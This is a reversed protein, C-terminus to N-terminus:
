RGRGEMGGGKQLKKRGEMGERGKQLREMGQGGKGVRKCGRWGRGEGGRCGEM